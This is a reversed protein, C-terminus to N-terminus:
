EESKKIHPNNVKGFTEEYLDKSEGDKNRIEFKLPLFLDTKEGVCNIMIGGILALKSNPGMWNNHLIGELFEETIEFMKYSLATMENEAAAIEDAHPILLSKICDMQYDMQGGAFKGAGEKDAKVAALAGIAAGCAASSKDQGKRLVKGVTGDHDVGVHPAFLIVINGDKPCHSSFASWGTKGTFPFGALGAL